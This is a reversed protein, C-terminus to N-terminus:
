AHQGAATRAATVVVTTYPVTFRGGLTDIAAGVSELILALSEAPLRTLIGANGQQGLRHVHGGGIEGGLALEAADGGLGVEVREGGGQDAGHM